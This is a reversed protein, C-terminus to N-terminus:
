KTQALRLNVYRRWTNELKKKLKYGALNYYDDLIQNYDQIEMM